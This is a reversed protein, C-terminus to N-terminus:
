SLEKWTRASPSYGGAKVDDPKVEVADPGPLVPTHQENGFDTMSAATVDHVAETDSGRGAFFPSKETVMNGGAMSSFYSPFSQNEPLSSLDQTTPKSPFM